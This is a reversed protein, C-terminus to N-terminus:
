VIRDVILLQQRHDGGETLPMDIHFTCYNRDLDVTIMFVHLVEAMCTSCGPAMGPPCGGHRGVGIDDDVAFPGAMALGIGQGAPGVVSGRGERGEGDKGGWLVRQKVGGVQTTFTHSRRRCTEVVRGEDLNSTRRRPGKEIISGIPADANRRCSGKDM